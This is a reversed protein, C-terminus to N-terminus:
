FGVGVTMDVPVTLKELHDVHRVRISVNDVKKELTYFSETWTTEGSTNFSTTHFQSKIEKGGADFFVISQIATLPMETRLAFETGHLPAPQGPFSVSPFNPKKKLSVSMAVPGANIKAGETLPVNKQEDTKEGQGCSFVLTGKITIKSAGSAPLSPGKVEVLCSRGDPGKESRLPGSNFNGFHFVMGQRPPEKSLDTNRDDKFSTLQSAKPDLDVITKGRQSVLLTVSTGEQVMHGFRMMSGPKDITLGLVEVKAAGAQATSSAKKTKTPAQFALVDAAATLALAASALLLLIRKTTPM